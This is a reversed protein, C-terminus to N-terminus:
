GKSITGDTCKILYDGTNRDWTSAKDIARWQARTGNFIIEELSECDRFAYAGIYTITNPIEVKRLKDCSDFAYSEIMNVTYGMYKANIEVETVKTSSCSVQYGGKTNRSLVLYQADTDDNNNNTSNNTSNNNNEDKSETVTKKDKEDIADGIKDVVPPVIALAVILTALVIMFIRGIKSKSDKKAEVYASYEVLLEDANQYDPIQKLLAVARTYNALSKNESYAIATDYIEEATSMERMNRKSFLKPYVIYVIVLTLIVLWSDPVGSDKLLAQILCLLIFGVNVIAFVNFITNSHRFNWIYEKEFTTANLCPQWRIGGLTAVYFCLMIQFWTFYLFGSFITLMVRCFFIFPTTVFYLVAEPLFHVGEKKKSVWAELEDASICCGNRLFLLIYYVASASAGTVIFPLMLIATVIKLVPHLRSYSRQCAIECFLNKIISSYNM